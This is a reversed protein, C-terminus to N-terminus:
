LAHWDQMRDAYLLFSKDTEVAIKKILRFDDTLTEYNPVPIGKVETPMPNFKLGLKDMAVIDEKFTARVMRIDEPPVYFRGTFSEKVGAFAGFEDSIPYSKAEDITMYNNLLKKFFLLNGSMSLNSDTEPLRIADSDIGDINQLFDTRSDGGVLQQRDFPRLVIQGKGYVEEWRSLYKTYPQSFIQVYDAFSCTVNREQIAQGYWSMMYNLHDRMYLVVKTEEPPFFHAVKAPDVNRFFLESSFIYRMDTNKTVSRFEEQWNEGIRRDASNDISHALNHHAMHSLHFDPYDWGAANLVARNDVLMKQISSTGTKNSGIHLVFRPSDPM